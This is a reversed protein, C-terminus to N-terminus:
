HAEQIPPPLPVDNEKPYLSESPPKAEEKPAEPDKKADEKKQQKKWREKEEEEPNKPPKMCCCYCGTLMFLVGWEIMSIISMGLWLGINGGTDSVLPIIGYAASETLVQYNMREYYVEVILTNERYWERCADANKFGKAAETRRRDREERTLDPNHTTTADTKKKNNTLCEPPIYKDAPWLATSVTVGYTMEACPEPCNCGLTPDNVEGDTGDGNLIAWICEMKEKSDCLPSADGEKRRYSPDYCGCQEIIKKQICSRLCTEVNYTPYFIRDSSGKEETCPGYPKSLRKSDSYRIGISAAEGPAAFYGNTNPFPVEDKDHLTVVVGASEVWPLYLSQDTRFVMRLGYFPGARSSKQTGKPNFTYCRGYSPDNFESFHSSNCGETNYACNIVLEEYSYGHDNAKPSADYGNFLEESLLAAWKNAKASKDTGKLGFEDSADTKYEEVMRSLRDNKTKVVMPDDSSKWPNVHCLTVSPFVREGFELQFRFLKPNILYSPTSKITSIVHSLIGIYATTISECVAYNSEIKPRM